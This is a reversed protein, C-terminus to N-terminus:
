GGFMKKLADIEDKTMIDPKEESYPDPALAKAKKIKKSKASFEELKVTATKPKAEKNKERAFRKLNEIDAKNSFLRQMESIEDNTLPKPKEFLNGEGPHYDSESNLSDIMALFEESTMPNKYYLKAFNYIEADSSVIVALSSKMERTIMDKILDDATMKNGSSKVMINKSKPAFIAPNADFVATISYSPYKDILTKIYILFSNCALDVSHNLKEKLGPHKHIINFADLIYHKM